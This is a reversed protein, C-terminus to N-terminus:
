GDDICQAGHNQVISDNFDKRPVVVFPTVGGAENIKGPEHGPLPQERLLLSRDSLPIRDSAPPQHFLITITESSNASCMRGRGFFCLLKPYKLLGMPFHASFATRSFDKPEVAAGQASTANIQCGFVM